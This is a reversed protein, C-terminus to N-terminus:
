ARKPADASASQPAAGDEYSLAIGLVSAIVLVSCLTAAVAAILRTLRSTPNFETM